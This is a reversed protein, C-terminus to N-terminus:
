TEPWPYPAVGAARYGPIATCAAAVITVVVFSALATLANTSFVIPFGTVTVLAQSLLLQGYVGLCAGILCGTGILLASECILALWLTRGGYGQVKMRAFRRRRQWVTAGMVTATALVGAVLVLLAIQTLRGLGQRSSAQQAQERQTATEVTLGSTPGLAVQIERRVAPPSAHSALMVNYAGPDPSEWARAYDEGNLIIAGPPWGLNTTLAAVRFMTERPSPLIFAQGIHLHHQTALTKSIVAWGGTRLRANALALSGTVLQSEPIPSPATAPPAFVWIRRGGYELFGGRYPSVSRVGSLHALASTAVGPFPITAFLNQAGSPAVWLDAVSAIGHFSRNLGGQLNSRAGQITVSGFVAIAATAAVAISRARTKSSGLEVIALTMAGMGLPRQMRAFGAVILDLLLPLLLLLAVILAIIGVVASQPEAFFIITAVGLCACGGALMGATRGSFSLRERFIDDRRARVWVDRMPTLVGVCAALTGGAVAIFISEWTVIRQSGIPFAFSLFGPPSNFALISLLDGLVLGVLSAVAALVLADFLLTKVTEWRTAGSHRLERILGRRRDTTLLMSCYAFMFGVLACIAAFTQTSQDVPAAAQNFLTAEYDAPEVNLRGAALRVLGAHVEREAGPQTQVLLRTIRDRMMTLKQAYALPALAIPSDVLPGISRATLEVGVLAHVVRAGVQLRVAELPGVGLRSAIPAPLALVHGRALQEASIHRLLRGTFRVDRPDTAILDISQSKHLHTLSAQAELVPVAARVGPLGRVEGLLAESFGRPSRAKLQYTSQGVVGSTLQAVSGNLSTSAVQSAFLLAVGVAIGLVAFLEQVLVVRAKLRVVYLHAINSLRM